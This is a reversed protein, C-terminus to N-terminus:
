GMGFARAALADDEPMPLSLSRRVHSVAVARWSLLRSRRRTQKRGESRARGHARESCKGIFRCLGSARLVGSRHSYLAALATEATCQISPRKRHRDDACAVQDKTITLLPSEDKEENWISKYAEGSSFPRKTLIVLNLLPWWLARNVDVVRRDSLFEKLYRRM